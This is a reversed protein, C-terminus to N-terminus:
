VVYYLMHGSYLLSMKLMQLCKVSHNKKKQCFDVNPCGIILHKEKSMKLYLITHWKKGTKSVSYYLTAKNM